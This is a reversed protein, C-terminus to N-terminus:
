LLYHSRSFALKYHNERHPHKMQCLILSFNRLSLHNPSLRALFITLVHLAFIFSALLLLQLYFLRLSQDISHRKSITPVSLSRACSLRANNCLWSTSAGIHPVFILQLSVVLPHQGYHSAMSLITLSRSLSLSLYLHINSRTKANLM